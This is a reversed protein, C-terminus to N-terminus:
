REESRAEVTGFREHRAARATAISLLPGLVLLVVAVLVANIAPQTFSERVVVAAAIPAPGAAAGAAAFHLRDFVDRALLVGLSCVVEIGVGVALLAWETAARASM